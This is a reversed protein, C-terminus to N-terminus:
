RGVLGLSEPDQPLKTSHGCSLNVVEKSCRQDGSHRCALCVMQYGTLQGQRHRSVYRHAGFSTTKSADRASIQRTDSTKAAKKSPEVGGDVSAAVEEKEIKVDSSSDSSSSSSTSSVNEEREPQSQEGDWLDLLAKDFMPDEAETAVSLSSHSLHGEVEDGSDAEGEDDEKMKAGSDSDAMKELLTQKRPM